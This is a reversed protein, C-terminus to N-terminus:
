TSICYLPHMSEQVFNFRSCSVQVFFLAFLTMYKYLVFPAHKGSRLQVQLLAFLTMYKNRSRLQVQLLAFLTMYKYLVFPAKRFSTSGSVVCVIDHVICYLSRLQVQFLAFLTM